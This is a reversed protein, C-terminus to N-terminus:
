QQQMMEIRKALWSNKVPILWNNELESKTQVLNNFYPTDPGIFNNQLAYGLQSLPLLQLKDKVVFALMQRDFM